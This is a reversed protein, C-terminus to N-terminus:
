CCWEQATYITTVTRLHNWKGEPDRAGGMVIAIVKSFKLLVRDSFSIYDDLQPVLIFHVGPLLPQYLQIPYTNLCEKYWFKSYRKEGDALKVAVTECCYELISFVYHDVVEAVVGDAGCKITTKIDEWLVSRSM